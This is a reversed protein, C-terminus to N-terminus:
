KACRAVAEREAASVIGGGHFAAFDSAALAAGAAENCDECRATVQYRVADAANIAPRRQSRVTFCYFCLLRM